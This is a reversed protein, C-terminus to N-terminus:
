GMNYFYSNVPLGLDLHFGNISQCLPVEILVLARAVIIHFCCAMGEYM